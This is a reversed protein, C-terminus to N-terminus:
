PQSQSASGQVVPAGPSALGDNHNDDGTANSNGYASQITPAPSAVPTSLGGVSEGGDAAHAVSDSVSPTSVVGQVIIEYAQFYKEFEDGLNMRNEGSPSKLSSSGDIGNTGNGKTIEKETYKTETSIIPIDKKTDSLGIASDTEPQKEIDTEPDTERDTEPDTEPNVKLRSIIFADVKERHFSYLPTLGHHTSLMGAKNFVAADAFNRFYSRICQPTKRMSRAVEPVSFTWDKPKDYCYWLLLKLTEPIAADVIGHPIPAWGVAKPKTNSNL